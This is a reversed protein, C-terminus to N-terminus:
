IGLFTSPPNKPDANMYPLHITFQSGKGPDSELSIRGGHAEVLDRAISLGLGMGQKIRRGQNGRYFPEFVKQQEEPLIGTGSDEVRIWLEVETAGASISVKGGSHTYKIANGV